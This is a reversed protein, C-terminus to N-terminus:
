ASCSGVDSDPEIQKMIVTGTPARIAQCSSPSYLTVVGNSSGIFVATPPLEKSPADGIWKVQVKPVNLDLISDILSDEGFAPRGEKIREAAKAGSATAGKIFAFLLLSVCFVVLAAHVWNEM